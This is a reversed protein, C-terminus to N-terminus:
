AADPFHLPLELATVEPGRHLPGSAFGLCALRRAALNRRPPVRVVRVHRFQNPLCRTELHKARHEPAAAIERSLERVLRESDTLLTLRCAGLRAAERAAAVAAMYAAAVPDSREVREALKALTRGDAASLVVGTGAAM